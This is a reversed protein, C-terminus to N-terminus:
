NSRVGLFQAKEERVFRRGLNTMTMERLQFPCVALATQGDM